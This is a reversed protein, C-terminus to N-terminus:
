NYTFVGTSYITASAFNNIEGGGNDTLTLSGTTLNGTSDINQCTNNFIITNSGSISINRPLERFLFSVDADIPNSTDYDLYDCGFSYSEGGSTIKFVGRCGQTISKSQAFRIDRLLISRANWQNYIKSTKAVQGIASNGIILIMTMSILLEFLTVGGENTKLFNEASNWKSKWSKRAKM